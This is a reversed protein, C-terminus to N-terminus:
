EGELENHSFDKYDFIYKPNTIKYDIGDVFLSTAIRGEAETFRIRPFRPRDECKPHKADDYKHWREHFFIHVTKEEENFDGQVYWMWNIGPNALTRIM